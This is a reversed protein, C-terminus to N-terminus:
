KAPKITLAAEGLNVVSEVQGQGDFLTVQLAIVSIGHTTREVISRELKVVGPIEIVDSDPFEREQGQIMVTGVDTGKTNRTTQDGSVVNVQGIINKILIDADNIEAIGVRGFETGSAKAAGQTGLQRSTLNRLELGPAPSVGVISKSREKGDTGSCPMLSLPTKGVKAVGGVATARAGLSNGAMLGTKVGRELKARTHAIRVSTDSPLLDIRVGDAIATAGQSNASKSGKGLAITAVGPVTVSEGPAPADFVQPAGTPPTFTIGGIRGTVTSDFGGKDHFAKAISTISTIELSGLGSEALVVRAVHSRSTTATQGGGTTTTLRTTVEEAQGAGPLEEVAVYNERETGALNSCGLAEFASTGSGAPVQGGTVKTGYGSAKFAFDTAKRQKSAQGADSPAAYLVGASAVTLAAITSVIKKM